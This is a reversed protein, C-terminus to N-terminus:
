TCGRLLFLVLLIPIPVGLLWLLVWGIKGEESRRDPKSPMREGQRRIRRPQQSRVVFTCGGHGAPTSFVVALTGGTGARPKRARRSDLQPQVAKRCIVDVQRAQVSAISVFGSDPRLRAHCKVQL